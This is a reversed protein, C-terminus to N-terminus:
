PRSRHLLLAEQVWQKVQGLSPCLATQNLLTVHLKMVQQHVKHFPMQALQGPSAIGAHLLLGCYECGVSPLRSLDALAAWKNVYQPHIQLQSALTARQEPTATHRCLQLTTAIGQALLKAQNDTNLGPLAQIAWNQSRVTSTRPATAASTKPRHRPKPTKTRAQPAKSM